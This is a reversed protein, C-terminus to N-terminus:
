CNVSTRLRISPPVTQAKTVRFYLPLVLMLVFLFYLKRNDGYSKVTHSKTRDPVGVM